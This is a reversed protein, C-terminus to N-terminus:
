QNKILIREGFLPRGPYSVRDIMSTSESCSDLISNKKYRAPLGDYVRNKAEEFGNSYLNPFSVTNKTMLCLVKIFLLVKDM